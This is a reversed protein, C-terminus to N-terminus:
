KESKYRRRIVCNKRWNEGGLEANQSSSCKFKVDLSRNSNEDRKYILIQENCSPLYKLFEFDFESNGEKGNMVGLGLERGWASGESM